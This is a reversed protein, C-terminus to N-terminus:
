LEEGQIDIPPIGALVISCCTHSSIIRIASFRHVTNISKTYSIVNLTQIWISDAYLIVSSMVNAILSRRSSGVVACGRKSMIRSLANYIKNPKGSTYVVHEKFKLRPDLIVKLYKLQSQSTIECDRMTPM